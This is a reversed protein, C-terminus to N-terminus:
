HLSKHGSIRMSLFFVLDIEFIPYIAMVCDTVPFVVPDGNM